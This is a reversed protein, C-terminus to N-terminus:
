SRGQATLARADEEWGRFRKVANARQEATALNHVQAAFDCNFQILQQQYARYPERPSRFTEAYLSKVVARAEEPGAREASLKRLAQLADQQRRQREMLWAQPDLPSEATLQAIRERQADNLKGYIMEARDAVRRIQARRRDEPDPQLFDSRYEKLNKEYKREIHALQQSSLARVSDALAPLAHEFAADTRLQIADTWKCMQAPTVPQAAEVQARALLAAYDPLQTSRHWRFWEDIAERAKPEQADDFDIYRDLWWFALQPGQSYGFRVATCGALLLAVVGIIAFRVFSKQMARSM